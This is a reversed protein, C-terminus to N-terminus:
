AGANKYMTRWDVAKTFWDMYVEYSKGQPAGVQSEAERLNPQDIGNLFFVTVTDHVMPDTAFYYATESNDDMEADSIVELTGRHVSTNNASTDPVIPWKDSLYQMALHELVAPVLMYKLKLNLKNNQADYQKRVDTKAEGITTDSIVAASGLNRHDAHFLAIGDGMAANTNLLAYVHKNVLRRCAQALGSPIRVFADLDDNVIMQRSLTYVKGYTGLKGQEREESFQAHKFPFGEPILEPEDAGSMKLIDLTKFDTASGKRTWITYTNPAEEYARLLIKRQSNALIYPFDGTSAGLARIVIDHAGLRRTSGPERIELCERAMDVLSMGVAGDKRIAEAGEVKEDPIGARLAIAGSLAERTKQIQDHTIIAPTHGVANSGQQRLTLLAARVQSINLGDRLFGVAREPCGALECTEAIQLAESRPDSQTGAPPDGAPPDAAPPDAAPPDAAPPDAAPPDGAPPDGAPPDAAPPDERIQFNPYIEKMAKDVEARDYRELALKRATEANIASDALSQLFERANM